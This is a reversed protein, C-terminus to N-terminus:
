RAGTDGSEDLGSGCVLCNLETPDDVPADCRACREPSPQPRGVTRWCTLGCVTGPIGLVALVHWVTLWEYPVSPDFVRITVFAVPLGILAARFVAATKLM